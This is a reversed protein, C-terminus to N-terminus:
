KLKPRWIKIPISEQLPVKMQVHIPVTAIHQHTNRGIRASVLEHWGTTGRPDGDSSLIWANQLSKIPINSILHVAQTKSSPVDNILWATGVPRGALAYILGPGFGTFDLIEQHPQLGASKAASTLLHLDERTIPDVLLTNNVPGIQVEKTQEGLAILQRYTYHVDQAARLQIVLPPLCLIALYALLAHKAIISMSCLRYLRLVLFIVPFVMAMQGHQLVGTNTGFSYVGPLVFMMVMLGIEKAKPLGSHGNAECEVRWLLFVALGLLPIRLPTWERWILCFSCVGILIGIFSLLVLRSKLLALRKLLIFVLAASVVWSLFDPVIAQINWRLHNVMALMGYSGGATTTRIGEFLVDLWVPHVWQLVVFNLGVGALAVALVQLLYSRKWDSNALAFFLSHCIVLLLGSTAKALGCIGLTIGYCFVFHFKNKHCEDRELFHFLIGTSMLMSLLVLLNYSPARITGWLGFYFMSSSMGVLVLVLPVNAKIGDRRAVYSFIERTFFASGALLMLLSFVRMAPVNQGLLRFPLEFYAGFFSVTGFIDRWHMYNLVYFSEDTFDFGRPAMWIYLSVSALLLILVPIADRVGLLARFPDDDVSTKEAVTTTM